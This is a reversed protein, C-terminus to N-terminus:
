HGLVSSRLHPELNQTGWLFVLHNHSPIISLQVTLNSWLLIITKFLSPFTVTILFPCILWGLRWRWWRRSRHLTLFCTELPLPESKLLSLSLSLTKSSSPTQWPSALGTELHSSAGMWTFINKLDTSYCWLSWKSPSQGVTKLLVTSFIRELSLKQLERFCSLCNVLPCSVPFNQFLHSYWVVQGAEQSIQICALFCCNSSSM